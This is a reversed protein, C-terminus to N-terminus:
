LIWGNDLPFDVMVKTYEGEVSEFWLKGGHNEIIGHSISLGLGTGENKPKTSYFPECMRDLIDASIGTGRDYFIIRVHQKGEFELTEGKIEFVKDEHSGPFRQNLAYRANSIINLFVQQIEQSRAKIKPLHPSVDVNLKIGDKIIQREVLTFADALIDQIYTPCHEEKRDRAFALLNKVIEAVRDGEKIIRTPIEDDEGRENFEDKLIEAYGIIGTIPNNIEHAVGAALEGVSALHGARMTEAQLTKRETIDRCTYLITSNKISVSKVNVLLSHIDGAKDSIDCEINSIEGLAKLEDYDFLNDELLQAINGIARAEDYPYGFIVSLNPCIYTLAGTNDTIFVADSISSLTIRHLEESERLEEEAQVRETIDLVIGEYHTIDGKEDRRIRTMDDLWKVEGNKTIIRYPEHSFEKRDEEKSYTTVEQAVRELDDPHVTTEYSVKGSTFEEATHGFFEVINDSVFEVPWGEAKKWLFVVAPSRNIISYAERLAEEARKRETTDRFLTVVARKGHFETGIATLEVPVEAGDKRVISIEYIDSIPEGNMRRKYREVAGDQYTPHIIDRLWSLEVLEEQTYGTIDIAADNAFVCVSEVENTGNHVIIGQGSWTAAEVLTRYREESEQLAEEAKTRETIDHAIGRFGIPQGAQNKILSASLEHFGRSGDKRIIEYAVKKIPNGTRYIQNFLNNIKKYAEPSMYDRDNMGMLEDNSYGLTKSLSDNFFTLNGAIDVEFYSEEISDLITRYREESEQLAEESRKRATIDRGIGQIAYPEGEHYLLSAKTEIYIHEGNKATLKFETIDKQFGNKKVKELTQLALSMQDQSLLSAFNLSLTEEKAYGFLKLATPNADTFNGEFDHIYVCDLSRDFLATYRESSERLAEEAKKIIKIDDDITQLLRNASNVLVGFEDKTHGKPVSLRMKERDKAKIRVISSIIDLLPKTTMLYFSFSIIIALIFNRFFGSIVIFVSRDFFAATQSLPDVYVIIKGVNTQKPINAVLPITYKRKKGFLIDSIQRLRYEAIPRNLSALEVNFDDFIKVDVIPQYEFLGKAVNMALPADVLYAAQIATQKMTNIVQLVNSDLSKKQRSYDAYIQLVSFVIALALALLIVSRAQKTALRDRFRMSQAEKM